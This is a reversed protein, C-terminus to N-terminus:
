KHKRKEHILLILLVLAVLSMLYILNDHLFSLLRSENDATQDASASLSKESAPTPLPSFAPAADGEGSMDQSFDTQKAPEMMADMMLEPPIAEMPLAEREVAATYSNNSQDPNASRIGLLDLDGAKYAGLLLLVLTAAMAVWRTIRPLQRIPAPKATKIEERWAVSFTKPVEEGEYLSQLDKLSALRFRCVACIELHRDLCKKEDPSLGGELSRELLDAFDNCAM